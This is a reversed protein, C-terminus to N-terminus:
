SNNIVKNEQKLICFYGLKYFDLILLDPKESKLNKMLSKKLFNFLFIILSTLCLCDIVSYAKLLRISDRRQWEKLQNDIKLLNALSLNIKRLYEGAPDLGLHLMPNDIFSVKINNKQLTIGFLTDEYGYQNLDESFPYQTLINKDILFNFCSFYKGVGEERTKGFKWRLIYKKDPCDPTYICGGFSVVSPKCQDKYKSLYESDVVQADSDIFLLYPYQALKALRNRTKALGLNIPNEHFMVNLQDAVTKNKDRILTDTSADDLLVIESPFGIDECQMHLDKVLDAVDNNYIPICISIM